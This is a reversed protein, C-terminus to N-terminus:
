IIQATKKYLLKIFDKLLTESLFNSLRDSIKQSKESDATTMITMMMMMIIAVVQQVVEGTSLAVVRCARSTPYEVLPGPCPQHSHDFNYLNDFNPHYQDVMMALRASCIILIILQVPVSQDLPNGDFDDKIEGSDYM